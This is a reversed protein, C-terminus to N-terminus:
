DAPTYNKLTADVGPMTKSWGSAQDTLCIYIRYEYYDGSSFKKLYKDLLEKSKEANLGSSAGGAASSGTDVIHYIYNTEGFAGGIEYTFGKTMKVKGSATLTTDGIKVSLGEPAKAFNFDIYIESDALSTLVFNTSASSEESAEKSSTTEISSSAAPTSSSTAAGGSCSALLLMSAVLPFLKKM